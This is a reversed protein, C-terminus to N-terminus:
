LKSQGDYHNHFFFLSQSFFPLVHFVDQSCQFLFGAFYPSVVKQRHFFLNCIPQGASWGVFPRVVRKFCQVSAYFFGLAPFTNGATLVLHDSQHISSHISHHVFSWTCEISASVTWHELCEAVSLGVSLGVKMAVMTTRITISATAATLQEACCDNDVGDRDDDGDDDNDDNYRSKMIMMITLMLMITMM